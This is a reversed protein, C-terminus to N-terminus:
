SSTRKGRLAELVSGLDLKGSIVRAVLAGIAIAIAVGVFEWFGYEIWVLALVAGVAMGIVTTSM